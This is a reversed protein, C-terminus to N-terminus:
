APDQGRSDPIYLNTPNDKHLEVSAPMELGRVDFPRTIVHCGKRSPIVAEIAWEPLAALALTRDEWSDVDWLWWKQLPASVGCAHSYGHRMGEWNEALVQEMLHLAFKQGVKKFSRLSLRTYARAGTYECWAIIDPMQKDFENRSRHYFTRVLRGKNNGSKRDRNLLETYIFSDGDFTEPVFRRVHDRNDVIM